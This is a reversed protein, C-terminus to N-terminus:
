LKFITNGLHDCKISTDVYVKYNKQAAKMCFDVDESVTDKHDLASKYAFQPYGIDSLVERKTLVCGFGCGAVELLQPNAVEEATANRMGGFETPLYVEPTKHDPKRQIYVGSVIDKNHGLLKVLTDRPLVIDSDVWFMYDFNNRITYDAMLNRIQAINYGYFYQFHLNVNEPVILDFISKFTDTEIYKATPIGILIELKKETVRLEEAENTIYGAYWSFDPLQLKEVTDSRSELDKLHVTSIHEGSIHEDISVETPVTYILKGDNSLFGTVKDLTGIPDVLHELVEFMLIVDYKKDFSNIKEIDGQRWGLHPFTKSGLEINKRSIDVCDINHYGQEYLHNSIAGTWAGIDLIKSDKSLNLEKILEDLWAVRVRIYPADLSDVWTDDRNEIVAKYEAIAEQNGSKVDDLITFLNDIIKGSPTRPTTLISDRNKNQEEGNVKYDNLPNKDNYNVLVRKSCFIKDRDAVDLLAYMLAVDGGAGYTKGTEKNIHFEKDVKDFLEKTFTRLHTYPIVWPFHYDRYSKNDKVSQPYDEAILDINDALSHCSGYSMQNGSHYVENIYNFIDPDNYLWDDGDLLAFITEKNYEKSLISLQNSLATGKETNDIVIFRSKLESPLSAISNEAEAVTNDTSMDNIIIHVYNDYLQTSVSNICNAIYKEANYVPSIIIIRKEQAKHPFFEIRDEQNLHRVKFLSNIHSTINRVEEIEKRTMMIDFKRYFHQKWQLAVGSWGVWPIIELCKSRKQLTLYRNSHAEVVLNIFREEQLDDKHINYHMLYSMDDIATQELAAFRSTIPVVGYAMAEVVSISFTEPHDPPYIMFTAQKLIEAVESQKIVGTFTIDNKNEYHDTLDFYDTEGKDKEGNPGAHSYYGGIVTLKAEPIREKVRPWINKVLPIMGKTISSNYVFMNPDKQKIDVAPPYYKIGNRTQFIHKKIIDYNRKPTGWHDSQSIYHSHWDTLTFVEDIFGDVLLPELWEEGQLFTDHMWVAKYRARPVIYEFPGIDKQFKNWIDVGFKQPVLPLVSRLSILVDYSKQDERITSLDKYSVGNFVGEKECKNYVTVSFGLKVLEESMYLTASESGGIGRKLLTDGTFVLGIIDIFCISLKM